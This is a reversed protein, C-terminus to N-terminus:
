VASRLVAKCVAGAHRGRRRGQRGNHPLYCHLCPKKMDHYLASFVDQDGSLIQAFCKQLQSNNM